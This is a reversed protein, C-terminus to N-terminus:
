PSRRVVQERVWTGEPIADDLVQQPSPSPARYFHCRVAPTPSQTFRLTALAQCGRKLEAEYGPWSWRFVSARMRETGFAPEMWTHDPDREEFLTQWEGASDMEQIQLRSPTTHPAVFMQWSQQSHVWGLYRHFPGIVRARATNWGVAFSWLKEEFVPEDMGLMAAYAHFEAQVTAEKWAQRRLGSSTDPSADLVLAVAHWLVAGAVLHPGLARLRRPLGM